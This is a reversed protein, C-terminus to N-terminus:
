RIFSIYITLLFNYTIATLLVYDKNKELIEYNKANHLIMYFIFPILFYIISYIIYNIIPKM